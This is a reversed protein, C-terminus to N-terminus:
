EGHLIVDLLVYNMSPEQMENPNSPFNDSDGKGLSQLCEGNPNRLLEDHTGQDVVKGGALVSIRDANRITSLRHAVVVSTRGVALRELAGQPVLGPLPTHRSSRSTSRFM